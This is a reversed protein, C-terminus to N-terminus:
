GRLNNPTPALQPQPIEPGVYDYTHISFSFGNTIGWTRDVVTGGVSLLYGPLRTPLSVLDLIGQLLTCVAPQM